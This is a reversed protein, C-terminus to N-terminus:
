DLFTIHSMIAMINTHNKYLLATANDQIYLALVLVSLYGSSAGLSAIMEFDTSYYGRGHTKQLKHKSRMEELETYRKILALSTFIFLSFVLIWFTPSMQFVLLGAIIRTTYLGALIVVDLMMIRKLFLTYSLSMTYYIILAIFFSFPLFLTCCILAMILLVPIMYSGTQISLLGSAFQRNKKTNHYRDDDLDILDNLIYVSSACLGFCLFALTGALLMTPSNIKHAAVLPVFLLLNKAWQHLRLAKFWSIWSVTNSNIIASVNGFQRAKKELNRSPNVLFAKDASPWVHLDDHNNGVYDFGKVGFRQILTTHKKKGSLNCRHDTALVYEFIGLHKSISKAYKKHSATALILTQGKAKVEQLWQIVVLDYPLNEITLNVCQALKTKLYARGGTILWLIPKYFCWPMLKLFLFFSEWLIDSKLLTGDLDVVLPKKSSNIAGLADM